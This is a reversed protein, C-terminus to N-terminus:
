IINSCKDTLEYIILVSNELYKIDFIKISKKNDLIFKNIKDDFLNKDDRYIIKVIKKENDTDDDLEHYDLFNNEQFSGGVNDIVKDKYNYSMNLDFLM